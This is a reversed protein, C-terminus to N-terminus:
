PLLISSDGYSLFDFKEELAKEYIDKWRDGILAAVLLILTSKPLHFNTVLGNAVKVEYGPAMMLATSAVFRPQSYTICWHHLASFADQVSVNKPLDYADWQGLFPVYNEGNHHILKVGLWYASELTRMSTTGVPIIRKKALAIKAILQIPIEFYEAHMDHGEITDASVPKFTGSGVHLTLMEVLVKKSEIKHLVEKTFHLAATPAAVSGENKAFVTQYKEIDEQTAEREFYPPLPLEGIFQLVESFTLDPIDWSFKVQFGNESDLRDAKFVIEFGNLVLRRELTGEKWKKAGGIMVNWVVADTQIMAEQYDQGVPSICFIEINAGTPKQFHLRAPIVKTENLVLMDEPELFDVINSFQTSFIEGKKFVMLKSQDRTEKAFKAIREEPLIYNYDEIRIQKPHKM